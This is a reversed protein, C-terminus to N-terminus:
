VAYRRRRLIALGGMALLSLGAPEPVTHRFNQELILYDAFSVKGDNNFDGHDWDVGTKAWNLELTLYDAFNVKGDRNADGPITAPEPVSIFGPPEGEYKALDFTLPAARFGMATDSYNIIPGDIITSGVLNNFNFADAAMCGNVTRLTGNVGGLTGSFTVGFGPALLFSGPMQRLDHFEPTDPLFEVGKTITNGFFKITDTTYNNDGADQSVIMGTIYLNCNFTVKNPQEVFVMGNITINGNFTPNTNAAIRINTFTKAGSTSTTKDV